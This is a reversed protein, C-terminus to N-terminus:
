LPQAATEDIQKLGIKLKGEPLTMAGGKSGIGPLVQAQLLISGALGVLVIKRMKIGITIIM